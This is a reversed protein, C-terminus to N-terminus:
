LTGGGSKDGISPNPTKTPSGPVSSPASPSERIENAHSDGWNIDRITLTGSELSGDFDGFGPVAITKNENGGREMYPLIGAGANTGIKRRREAIFFGVMIGIVIILVAIIMGLPGPLNFPSSGQGPNQIAPLESNPNSSGAGGGIILLAKETATPPISTPIPTKTPPVPTPTKRQKKEPPPPCPVGAPDCGQAQVATLPIFMVVAMAVIVAGLLLLILSRTIRM